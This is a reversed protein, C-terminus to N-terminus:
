LGGILETEEEIVEELEVEEEEEEFDDETSEIIRWFETDKCKELIEPSLIEEPNASISKVEPRVEHMDAIGYVKADNERNVNKLNNFTHEFPEEDLFEYIKKMTEKPNSVLDKYEILHISNDYGEMLAKRLGEASQGLIGSPSALLECRNDDTLPINNKVLMEDIFNIKGDVQYPNRRIMSIFSTLIEATDRVPCLVKPAVDFYGSIYEMRITWSRNKDFIVPEERDSYYQPLISSIIEKVQQPKPYGLFLDDNSLSDELTLITSVVPSSPGSYFRPNQNLISSLLTSGSRPLGAMFYYTKNLRSMEERIEERILEKIMEKM